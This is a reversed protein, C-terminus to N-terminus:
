GRGQRRKAGGFPTVSVERSRRWPRAMNRTVRRPAPREHCVCAMGGVAGVGRPEGLKDTNEPADAQQGEATRRRLDRQHVAFQDFDAGPEGFLLEQLRQAEAHQQRPGLRHLQGGIGSPAHRAHCAAQDAPKEEDNGARQHDQRQRHEVRGIAANGQDLRQKEADLGGDDHDHGLRQEADTGLRQGAPKGPTQRDSCEPREEHQLQGERQHHDARAQDAIGGGSRGFV